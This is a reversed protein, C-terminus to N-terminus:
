SARAEGEPLKACHNILWASCTSCTTTDYYKAIAFYRCTEVQEVHNM